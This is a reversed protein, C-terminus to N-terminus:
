SILFSIGLKKRVDNARCDELNDKSSLQRTTLNNNLRVCLGRFVTPLAFSKSAVM